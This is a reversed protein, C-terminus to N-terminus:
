GRDGDAIQGGHRPISDIRAQIPGAGQDPLSQGDPEIAVAGALVEIQRRLRKSGPRETSDDQNARIVADGRAKGRDVDGPLARKRERRLGGDDPPGRDSRIAPGDVLHADVPGRAFVQADPCPRDIARWGDAHDLRDSGVLPESSGERGLEGPRHGTIAQRDLRAAFHGTPRPQEIRCASPDIRHGLGVEAGEDAM